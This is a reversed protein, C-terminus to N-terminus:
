FYATRTPAVLLAMITVPILFASLRDNTVYSVWRPSHLPYRIECGVINKPSSEYLHIAHDYDCSLIKDKQVCGLLENSKIEM